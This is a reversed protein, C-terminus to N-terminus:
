IGGPTPTGATVVRGLTTGANPGGVPERARCEPVPTRRAAVRYQARELRQRWHRHLCEREQKIDTAARLSLDVAAPELAHMVQQAVLEDVPPAKLGVCPQEREEFLHTDCWYHPKRTKGPQYGVNMRHGCRGCVVLGSLLARGSRAAGQAGPFSRNESLRRQNALYQEWSIYAPVRGQILVRIEDPSLFWKGGEVQGSVPNKRGPRHIGYAYAGAYIPHRLMALIRNHVPRRWELQGRKPGRLCRYGFQIKNQKLYCFVRWVTGLEEFKDFVLQVVGRAQEDPEQAVEGSPSKVYGIPLHLFLEGRAAKNDRGRELRNRLTILEYESMAGKMGLLLRDNSDNANYVGDQDYLLTDFVACVEVLHHWDKCSRALRSLELGLVMGVHDMTVETLLRQFGSRNEAFKGSLGQDEDIVLVRDAPWGFQEALQALGYQREARNM